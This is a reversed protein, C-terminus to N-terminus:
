TYRDGFREQVVDRVTKIKEAMDARCVLTARDTHIVVLDRCGITAILHEPESSAVLCDATDVLLHKEAALANGHEDLPRTQAFSPWSGVDLWTLPMPIAAVRVSSDRSAPEMVAFDVSIKKLTPYVRNLVEEQRATGWAGAVSMLGEWVTPEYRRIGELLTQARWVFMGSNWLYSEPGRAVYQRAVEQSPKERFERVVRASGDIPEGLELYGYGTAPGTPTIGFTVLTEPSREVLAFGQAIIQQFEDVPEIVHDATFVGIVAEPDKAALVAASFGVASLTDRGVPEGLFQAPGLAPLASLIVDCHAQGACVFRDETSILGEFRDFAVELLSKGDILPVLQKPLESRSM